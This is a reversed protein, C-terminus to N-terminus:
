PIIQLRLRAFTDTNKNTLSIVKAAWMLYLEVLYDITVTISSRIDKQFIVPNLGIYEMQAQHNM